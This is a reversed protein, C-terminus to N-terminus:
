ILKDYCFFDSSNKPMEWGPLYYALRDMIALDFNQPLPAFLDYETSNVIQKISQDINGVFWVQTLLSKQEVHFVDM